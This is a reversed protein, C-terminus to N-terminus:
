VFQYHKEYAEKFDSDNIFCEWIDDNREFDSKRYKKPDNYKEAKQYFGKTPSTIYGASLAFDFLDSYKDIGLEFSVNMNFTAGEQIYRSKEAKLKFTFGTLTTGDKEKSKSLFLVNNAPYMVGSNHTIVGNSLVYNHFNKVTIDYLPISDIKKISTVKM